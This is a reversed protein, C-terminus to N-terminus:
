RYRRARGPRRFGDRDRPRHRTRWRYCGRDRRAPRNVPLPDDHSEEPAPRACSGAHVRAPAYRQAAALTAPRRRHDMFNFGMAALEGPGPEIRIVRTGAARLVAIEGDLGRTMRRRLLREVRAPGIAPASESSTMPAVVVLETLGVPHVLDASVSSITGGDLYRRGEISVPPFWGPVAWSAALADDLRSRPADTSGLTVRAGTVADAAVLWTAPHSLWGDVGALRAGLERLWAPTGAFTSPSCSM